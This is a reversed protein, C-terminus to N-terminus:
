TGTRKLWPLMRALVQDRDLFQHKLAGAVHLLILAVMTIALAEHSGSAMGQLEKGRPVPLRPWDFWGYWLIPNGRPNASVMIWGALPLLILLVYFGWHTLRALAREVATMHPPRAPGGALLRHALFVISLTLVTLGTSKHFQVIAGALEKDAPDASGGLNKMTIAAIINTFVLVAIIWHLLIATRSYSSIPRAM